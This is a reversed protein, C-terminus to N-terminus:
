KKGMFFQHQPTTKPKVLHTPLFIPFLMFTEDSNYSMVSSLDPVFFLGCM